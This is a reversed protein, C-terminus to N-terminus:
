EVKNNILLRILLNTLIPYFSVTISYSIKVYQATDIQIRDNFEPYNIWTWNEKFGVPQYTYRLTHYRNIRLPKNGSPLNSNLSMETIIPYTVILSSFLLIAVILVLNKQM